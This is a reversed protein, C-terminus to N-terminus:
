DSLACRLAALDRVVVEVLFPVMLLMGAPLAAFQWVEAIGLTELDRNVGFEALSIGGWLLVLASAAVALDALVKLAARARRNSPPLIECAYHGSRRVAVAAGLFVCWTFLLLAAEQTWIAAVGFAERGAVQWAVTVVLLGFLLALLSLLVRELIRNVRELIALM